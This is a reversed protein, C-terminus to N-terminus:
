KQAIFWMRAEVRRSSIRNSIGTWRVKVRRQFFISNRSAFGYRGKITEEWMQVKKHRWENWVFVNDHVQFPDIESSDFFSSSFQLSFSLTFYSQKNIGDRPKKGEENWFWFIEVNGVCKPFSCNVINIYFCITWWRYWWTSTWWSHQEM